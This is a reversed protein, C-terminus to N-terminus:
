QASQIDPFGYKPLPVLLLWIMRVYAGVLMADVVFQGLAEVFNGAYVGGLGHRGVLTFWYSEEFNAIACITVFLFLREFRPGDRVVWYIFFPVVMILYVAYAKPSLTLFTFLLALAFNTFRDLITAAGREGTRSYFYLVVLTLGLVAAVQYLRIASIQDIGFITLLYPLNGSTVLSAETALSVFPNIRFLAMAAFYIAMLTGFSFIFRMKRLSVLLFAPLFLLGLIKVFFTSLAVLVGAWLSQQHMLARVTLVVFLGIWIQQVGNIGNSWLIVPGLAYCCTIKLNGREGASAETMKLFYFLTISDILITFFIISLVSNSVLLVGAIIFSFFFGYPTQFDRYPLKDSLVELGLPYYYGSVDGHPAAKAVFFVLFFLSIKVLFNGLCLSSVRIRRGTNQDYIRDALYFSILLVLSFVLSFIFKVALTRYSEDM